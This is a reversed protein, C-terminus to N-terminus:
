FDEREGNTFTKISISPFREKIARLMEDTIGMKGSEVDKIDSEKIRTRWAFGYPSENLIARLIRLNKAIENPFDEEESRGKASEIHREFFKENHINIDELEEESLKYRYTIFIDTCGDDDTLYEINKIEKSPNMNVRRLFDEIDANLRSNCPKCRSGRNSFKSIGWYWDKKPLQGKLLTLDDM